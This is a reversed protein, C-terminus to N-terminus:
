VNGRNIADLPAYRESTLTRNYSAWEVPAAVFPLACFIGIAGISPLEWTRQVM